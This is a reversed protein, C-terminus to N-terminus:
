KTSKAEELSQIYELANKAYARYDKFDRAKEFADEMTDWDELDWAANGKMYYALGEKPNLAILDDCAKIADKNRRAAYIIQAKKLLLASTPKKQIIEDLFKIAKDTKMAKAYADAIKLYDEEKGDKGKFSLEITKAVRLPVNMSSYLNEAEKFQAEKEPPKINNKIEYAGIMGAYDEKEQRIIGLQQWYTTNLPYLDLAEFLVSQAEDLKEEELAMQFLMNYWNEKPMDTLGIMKRIVRKSDAFKRIQYYAGSAAELFRLEKKPSTEYVKEMMPGAKAFDETEYLTAAYYSLLDHNDPYAEYGDKFVKKAEELKGDGYWYYGLMLFVDPHVVEPNTALYDLLYKRAAPLNEENAARQAEVMAMQAERTLRLEEEQNEENDNQCFVPSIFLLYVCAAFISIAIKKRPM